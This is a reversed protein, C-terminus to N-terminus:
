KNKVKDIKYKCKIILMTTFISIKITENNEQFFFFNPCIFKLINIPLNSETLFYNHNFIQNKLLFANYYYANLIKGLLLFSFTLNKNSSVHIEYNIFHFLKLTKRERINKFIM